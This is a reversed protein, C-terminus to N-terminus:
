HESIKLTSVSLAPLEYPFNQPDPISTTGTLRPSPGAGTLQYIEVSAGPTLRSFSFVANIPRTTKNLAVLAVYAPFANTHTNAISAYISTEAPRDTTANLSEDGFNSRKGDFNVFMRFAAAIFPQDGSMPWQCAAFVGERGFIGLVDAEAIGGSIDKGGGYNYETIALKTGPYYQDIKKKLRPILGIPGHTSEETIWSTEKYTPDWLSRPAQMRAAAVEAAADNSVIRKGGGLAEPYWHVDFVDLLRRNYHEDASRMCALYYEQFDRGGSDPASQLRIFGQWGYNVPGFIIADPAVHKIALSYDVTKRVVEEYTPNGPHIEAHTSAWLDPENDLEIFVPRSDCSHDDNIMGIGKQHLLWNIFEDQYVAGGADPVLEFEAGKRPLSRRFREHLYDPGSKRVDGDGNKDAAVYGAMPVTVIIGANREAANKM